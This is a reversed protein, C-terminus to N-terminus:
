NSNEPLSVINNGKNAYREDPINDITAPIDATFLEKGTKKSVIMHTIIIPPQIKAPKETNQEPSEKTENLSVNSQEQIIKTNDPEPINITQKIEINNTSVKKNTKSDVKNAPKITTQISKNIIVQTKTEKLNFEKPWTQSEFVAIQKSTVVKATINLEKKPKNINKYYSITASLVNNSSKDVIFVMGASLLACICFILASKASTNGSRTRSNM